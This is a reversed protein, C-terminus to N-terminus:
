GERELAEALRELLLQFDVGLPLRISGVEDSQKYIRQQARTLRNYYAFVM